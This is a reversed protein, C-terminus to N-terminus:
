KQIPTWKPKPYYGKWDRIFQLVGEVNGGSRVLALMGEIWAPIWLVQMGYENFIIKSKEEIHGSLSEEGIDVWNNSTNGGLTHYDEYNKTLYPKFYEILEEITNELPPLEKQNPKKDTM